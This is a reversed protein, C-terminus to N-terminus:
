LDPRGGGKIALLGIVCNTYAYRASFLATLHHGILKRNMTLSDVYRFDDVNQRDFGLNLRYAPFPNIRILLRDNTTIYSVPAAAPGFPTESAGYVM